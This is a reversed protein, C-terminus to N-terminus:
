SFFLKAAFCHPLGDTIMQRHQFGRALGRLGRLLHVLRAPKELLGDEDFFVLVRIFLFSLVYHLMLKSRLLAEGRRERCLEFLERPRWAEVWCDERLKVSVGVWFIGEELIFSCDFRGSTARIALDFCENKRQLAESLVPVGVERTPVDVRAKRLVSVEFLEDSGESCWLM